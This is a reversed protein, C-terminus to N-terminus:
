TIIIIIIIIIKKNNWNLAGFLCLIVYLVFISEIYMYCYLMKIGSLILSLTIVYM